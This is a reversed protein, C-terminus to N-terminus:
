EGGGRAFIAHRIVSIRVYASGCFKKTELIYVYSIGERHQLVRYGAASAHLGEQPLKHEAAGAGGQVM